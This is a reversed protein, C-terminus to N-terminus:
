MWNIGASSNVKTPRFSNFFHVKINTKVILYTGKIIPIGSCRVKTEDIIAKIHNWTLLPKTVQPRPLGYECDSFEAFKLLWKSFKLFSWRRKNPYWNSLSFQNRFQYIESQCQGGEQLFQRTFLKQTQYEAIQLTNTASTLYCCYSCEWCSSISITSTIM